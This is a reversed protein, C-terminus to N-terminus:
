QCPLIGAWGNKLAAIEGAQQHLQQQLTERSPGGGSADRVAAAVKDAHAYATQRSCGAARAQWSVAGWGGTLVAAANGIWSFISLNAM